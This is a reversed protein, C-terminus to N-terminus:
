LGAPTQVFRQLLARFMLRWVRQTRGIRWTMLLLGGRKIGQMECINHKLTGSLWQYVQDAEYARVEYTYRVFDHSELNYTLRCPGDILIDPEGRRGHETDVFLDYRERDFTLGTVTDATVACRMVHAIEVGHITHIKSGSATEIIEICRLTPVWRAFMSDDPARAVHRPAPKTPSLEMNNDIIDKADSTATACARKHFKKTVDDIEIGMADSTATACAGADGRSGDDADVIAARADRSANAARTSKKKSKKPRPM